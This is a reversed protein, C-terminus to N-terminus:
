APEEALALLRLLKENTAQNGAMSQQQNGAMSQQTAFCATMRDAASRRRRPPRHGAVAWGQGADGAVTLRPQFLAEPAPKPRRPGHLSM